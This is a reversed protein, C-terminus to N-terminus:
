QAWGSTVGGGSSAWNVVGTTDSVTPTLVYTDTAAIQGVASPTVTIVGDVTAITDVVDGGYTGTAVDAPVGNAGGDCTGIANGTQLCEEVGIKYPTVAAVVESYTARTTYDRYAPIAIAALIGVIAVVIMLEILTFGSQRQM